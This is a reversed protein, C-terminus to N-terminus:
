LIRLQLDAHGVRSKHREFLDQLDQVYQKHVENVEEATPKSTNKFEIPKGVVIHMPNRFPLPSGFMGWFVIPTFKIARSFQLYLKGSPKWWRYINTQM